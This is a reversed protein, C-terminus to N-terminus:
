GFEVGLHLFMYSWRVFCLQGRIWFFTDYINRGLHYKLTGKETCRVQGSHEMENNHISLFQLNGYIV